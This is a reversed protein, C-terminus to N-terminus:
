YELFQADALRMSGLIMELKDGVFKVRKGKILGSATPEQDKKIFVRMGTYTGDDLTVIADGMGNISIEKVVGYVIVPSHGYNSDALVENAKYEKIYFSAPASFLKDINQYTQKDPDDQKVQNVLDFIFSLFALAVFFRIITSIVKV